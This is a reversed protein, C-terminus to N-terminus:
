VAGGISSALKAMLTAYRVLNLFNIEVRLRAGPDEIQLLTVHTKKLIPVVDVGAAKAQAYALRTLAGSATPHAGAHADGRDSV